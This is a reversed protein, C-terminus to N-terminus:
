RPVKPEYLNLLSLPFWKAMWEPQGDWRKINKLWYTHVVALFEQKLGTVM